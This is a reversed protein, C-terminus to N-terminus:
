IKGALGYTEAQWRIANATEQPSKVPQNIIITQEVRKDGNLSLGQMLLDTIESKLSVDKKISSVDAHVFDILRDLRAWFPDLPILGEAGAEGGAHLTNGSFGLLTPRTMIGGKAHWSISFSPKKGKGGLGWPAKGGSVHFKPIKINLMKGIHLPFFGKIKSVIGSLKDKASQIPSLMANKINNFVSKVKGAISSFGSSFKEKISEIKGKINEIIPGFLESIASIAYTTVATRLAIILNFLALILKPASKIIILVIRPIAKIVLTIIKAVLKGMTTAIKPVSKSIGNAMHIVFNIGAQLMKSLGGSEVFKIGNEVAQFLATKIAPANQIIAKPIGIIIKVIAPLVNRLVAIASTAMNKIPETLDGGLALQGMFDKFSAKLMGWSGAITGAAEDATTGTIGLETQVAHIAQTVDSFNNIDYHVDLGKEKALDEAKRLLREMEQRTGGYM